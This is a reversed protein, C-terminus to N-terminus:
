SRTKRRRESARVFGMVLTLGGLILFAASWGGAGGAGGVSCGGSASQRGGNVGTGPPVGTGGPGTVGPGTGGDDEPRTSSPPRAADPPPTFGCIEKNAAWPVTGTYATPRPKDPMRTADCNAPPAIAITLETFYDTNCCAECCRYPMALGYRYKGPPVCEDIFGDTGICADIKVVQGTDVNQRLLGGPDPCRRRQFNTPVIILTSGLPSVRYEQAGMCVALVPRAAVAVFVLSVLSLLRRVNM